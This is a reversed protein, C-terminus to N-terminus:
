AALAIGTTDSTSARRRTALWADLDAILYGVAKGSLRIFPPCDPGGRLRTKTLTSVAMGLYKAAEPTRLVATM